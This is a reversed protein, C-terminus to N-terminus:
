RLSSDGDNFGSAIHAGDCFPKNDSRGCRCLTVRNRVEYKTGNASEMLIRGKVWIPGSVGKGPDETLSISPEFEPEIPKGDESDWVVLRGSSCQGAIRAAVKKDDPDGSEATLRWIGGAQHCFRLAACLDQADTLTYGPGELREARALYKKKSATETGDFMEKSHTGDCFPKQGSGGCRCLAYTERGPFAEGKEWEVSTGEGDCRIIEKALPLGGSVIYPGNESVLVKGTGKDKPKGTSQDAAYSKKNKIM